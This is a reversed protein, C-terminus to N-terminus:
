CLTQLISQISNLNLILRFLALDTNNQKDSQSDGLSLSTINRQDFLIKM